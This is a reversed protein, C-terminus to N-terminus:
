TSPFSAQTLWQQLGHNVLLPLLLQSSSIVPIFSRFPIFHVSFSNRNAFISVLADEEIGWVMLGGAELLSYSDNVINCITFYYLERLGFAESLFQLWNAGDFNLNESLVIALSAARCLCSRISEHSLFSCFNRLLCQLALRLTM